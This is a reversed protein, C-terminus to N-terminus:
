QPSAGSYIEFGRLLFGQTGDPRFVKVSIQDLTRDVPVVFVGRREDPDAAALGIYEGTAGDEIVM